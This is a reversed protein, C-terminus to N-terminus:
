LIDIKIAKNRSDWNGPFRKSDTNELINKLNLKAMLGKSLAVTKSKIYTNIQKAGSEDPSCPALWFSNKVEPDFRFLVYNFPGFSKSM